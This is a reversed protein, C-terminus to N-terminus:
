YIYKLSVSIGMQIETRANCVVEPSLLNLSGVNDRVGDRDWLGWACGHPMGEFKPLDKFKPLESARIFASGCM